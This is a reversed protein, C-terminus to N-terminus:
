QTVADATQSGATVTVNQKYGFLQSYITLEQGSGHLTCSYLEEGSGDTVSLTDGDSFAEAFTVRAFCLTSDIDSVATETESGVLVITQAKIEENLQYTGGYIILDTEAQITEDEANLVFTGDMIVIYGKRKDEAQDDSKLADNGATVNIVGGAIRLSDHGVLGNWGAQINITGSAIVLDDKTKIGNCDYSTINLTGSGNISLDAKSYIVASINKETEGESLSGSVTITNETGDALTLFVKDAKKVYIAARDEETLTVGNLVLQVKCGKASVIIRKGEAMTGSLVYTGKSVIYLDGDLEYANSLALGEINELDISTATEEDWSADLDRNSFIRDQDAKGDSKIVTIGLAEGNMFLITVIIAIVMVIACIIDIRKHTSM